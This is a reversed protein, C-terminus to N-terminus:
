CSDGDILVGQPMDDGEEWMRLNAMMMGRCQMKSQQVEFEKGRGCINGENESSFQIKVHKAYCNGVGTRLNLEGEKRTIV